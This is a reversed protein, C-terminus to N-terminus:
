KDDFDVIPNMRDYIENIQMQLLEIQKDKVELEKKLQTECFYYDLALTFSLFILVVIIFWTM